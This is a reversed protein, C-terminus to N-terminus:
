EAGLRLCQSWPARPRLVDREAELQSQLWPARQSDVVGQNLCLGPRGAPVMGPYSSPRALGQLGMREPQQRHAMAMVKMSLPVTYSWRKEPYGPMNGEVM